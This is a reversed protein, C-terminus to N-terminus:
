SQCYMVFVQNIGNFLIDNQSLKIYENVFYKILNCNLSRTSVIKVFNIIM